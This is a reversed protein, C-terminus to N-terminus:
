SFVLLKLYKKFYKATMWEKTSTLFYVNNSEEYVLFMFPHGTNPDNRIFRHFSGTGMVQFEGFKERIINILDITIM